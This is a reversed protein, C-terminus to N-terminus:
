PFNVFLICHRLVLIFSHVHFSGVLVLRPWLLFYLFNVEPSKLVSKPSEFKKFAKRKKSKADENAANEVSNTDGSLKDEDEKAESEYGVTEKILEESALLRLNRNAPQKDVIELAKISNKGGCM